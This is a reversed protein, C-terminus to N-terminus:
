EEGEAAQAADIAEALKTLIEIDNPLFEDRNATRNHMGRSVVRRAIHVVRNMRLVEADRDDLNTIELIERRLTAIEAVCVALSSLLAQEYGVKRQDRLKSMLDHFQQLDLRETM